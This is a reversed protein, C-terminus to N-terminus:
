KPKKASKKPAKKCSKQAESVSKSTIKASNQNVRGSRHMRNSFIAFFDSDVVTFSHLYIPFHFSM